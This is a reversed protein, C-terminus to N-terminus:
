LWVDDYISGISMICSQTRQLNNKREGKGEPRVIFGGLVSETYTRGLACGWYSWLDPFGRLPERSGFFLPQDWKGLEESEM